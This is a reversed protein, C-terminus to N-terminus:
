TGPDVPPETATDGGTVEDEPIVIPLAPPALVVRGPVNATAGADTGYHGVRGSIREALALPVSVQGVLTDVSTVTSLRTGTRSSERLSQVLGGDVVEHLAVVAGSSRAQAALAIETASVMRAEIDDLEESTLEADGDDEDVEPMDAERGVVLVVADAPETIEGEVEILGAEALIELIVGSEESVADPDEDAGTALAQALAEALEVPTGADVAPEPDLYDVLTAAITQRYTREGANTWGDTVRVVGTVTSGAETLRDSLQQITPGGTGGMEIIAVRRETLIGDLLDPAVTEFADESQSLEADTQDLESRLDAARTRLQDVEGTLTDGIAEKLPGAGLVIGVALALFVSILSVIHYRFDIV